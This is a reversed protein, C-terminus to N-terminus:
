RKNPKKPNTILKRLSDISLKVVYGIVASIAAYFAIEFIHPLTIGSLIIGSSYAKTMGGFLGSITIFYTNHM